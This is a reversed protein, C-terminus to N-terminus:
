NSVTFKVVITKYSTTTHSSSGGTFCGGSQSASTIKQQLTVEDAGTFAKAAAYKYVTIGNSATAIESVEFHRAQAKISASSGAGLNLVYTEGVPIHAQIVQPSQSQQATENQVDKSCSFTMIALLSVGVLSTAIRKMAIPKRLAVGM